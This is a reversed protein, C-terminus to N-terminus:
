RSKSRVTSFRSGKSSSKPETSEGVMVIRVKKGTKASLERVLRPMRSFVSKVPNARIAMVGDQLERTLLSLQELGQLVERYRDSSLEGLQQALMAQDAQNSGPGTAPKSQTTALGMGPMSSHPSAHCMGPLFFPTTQSMGSMSPKPMDMDLLQTDPSSQYDNSLPDFM